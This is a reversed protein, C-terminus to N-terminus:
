ILMFNHNLTKEETNQSNKKKWKQINDNNKLLMMLKCFLKKKRKSLVLSRHFISKTPFLFNLHYNTTKPKTVPKSSMELSYKYCHKVNWQIQEYILILFFFRETPWYLSKKIHKTHIKHIKYSFFIVLKWFIFHPWFGLHGGFKKKPRFDV